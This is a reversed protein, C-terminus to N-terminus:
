QTQEAVAQASARDAQEISPMWLMSAPIARLVEEFCKRRLKEDPKADDDISLKRFRDLARNYSKLTDRSLAGTIKVENSIQELDYYLDSYGAFLKTYREIPKPLALIPKLVALIAALGAVATWAYQGYGTKWFAWAGITGSTGVALSIELAM